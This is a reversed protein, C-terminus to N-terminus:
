KEGAPPVIVTNSANPDDAATKVADAVRGKAADGPNIIASAARHATAYTVLMGTVIETVQTPDITVAGKTKGYILSAAMAAGAGIVRPGLTKLVNKFWDM